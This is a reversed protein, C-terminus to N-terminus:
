TGTGPVRKEWAAAISELIQLAKDGVYGLVQGETCVSELAARKRSSKTISKIAEPDLEIAELTCAEGYQLVTAVKGTKRHIAGLLRMTQAPRAVAEDAEVAIGIYEAIERLKEHFALCVGKYEDTKIPEALRLYAHISKGGTDMLTLRVGYTHEFERYVALQEGKSCNDSEAKLCPLSNIQETKSGGRGPYFGLQHGCHKRAGAQHEALALLVAENVPVEKATSDQNKAFHWNGGDGGYATFAVPEGGRGITELFKPVQVLGEPLTTVSSM